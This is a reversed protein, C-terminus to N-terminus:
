KLAKPFADIAPESSQHPVWRREGFARPCKPRIQGHELAPLPFGDAQISYANIRAVSGLPLTQFANQPSYDFRLHIHFQMHMGERFSCYCAKSGIYIMRSDSYRVKLSQSQQWHLTVRPTSQRICSKLQLGEPPLNFTTCIYSYRETSKLACRGGDVLMCNTCSCGNHQLIQVDSSSFM